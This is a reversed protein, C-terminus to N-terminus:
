SDKAYSTGSFAIPGIVFTLNEAEIVSKSIYLTYAYYGEPISGEIGGDTYSISVNEFSGLDVEQNTSFIVQEVAGLLQLRRTIRVIVSQDTEGSIANNVVGIDGTLRVSNFIAAQRVFLGFEAIKTGFTGPIPSEGAIPIPPGSPHDYPTSSGTDVVDAM